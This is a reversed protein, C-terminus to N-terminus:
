PATARAIQREAAHAPVVFHLSMGFEPLQMESVYSGAATSELVLQSNEGPKSEDTLPVLLMFRGPTGSIKTLSLVPAISSCNYTFEYSGAPVLANEWRVDHTLTFHGRAPEQASALSPAYNLTTAALVAAYAFRRISTM